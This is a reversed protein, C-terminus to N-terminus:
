RNQETQCGSDMVNFSVQIQYNNLLGTIVSLLLLGYPNHPSTNMLVTHDKPKMASFHSITQSDFDVVPVSIEFLFPM